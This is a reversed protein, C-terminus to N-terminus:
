PNKSIELLAVTNAPMILSYTLTGGTANVTEGAIPKGLYTRSVTYPGDSINTVTIPVNETNRGAEDYNVVILTINPGDAAGLARVFSGEGEISLQQGRLKNLLELAFYRPRKEGEHSLIGWRPTTGDKIEFLFASEVNLNIFNRISAVMHAAGVETHAIDNPESDFGWESIVKPLLSFRQYDPTALWSNLNTIDTVYAEPDKSYHHWSLFDLRLSKAAVYDLFQTIWNKYLSTTVPGGLLFPYVDKAQAAAVAAYYYLTRYDKAGGIRWKGFWDPENWVEYYIDTKWVGDIQGCLRNSRGSYHEITKQVVESWDNWNKAPSVLTNDGSLEEPMYSLSLFPKAGTHYIDCVTEDLKSFDTTIKGSPDRAVVQYYDYIHDLRIYRPFLQAVQPVVDALMRVGQEEGGQALAKWRDPFPGLTRKPDIVLKAKIPSARAMYRFLYLFALPSLVLLLTILTFRVAPKM